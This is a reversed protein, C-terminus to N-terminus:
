HPHMMILKKGDVITYEALKIKARFIARQRHEKKEGKDEEMIHFWAKGFLSDGPKYQEKDLVLKQGLIKYTRGIHGTNDNHIWRYHQTTFKRGAYNATFGIGGHLSNSGIDIILGGSDLIAHCAYYTDPQFSDEFARNDTHAVGCTDKGWPDSLLYLSGPEYLSRFNATKSLDSDFVANSWKIEEAPKENRCALFLLSILYSLLRKM